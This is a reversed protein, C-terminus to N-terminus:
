DCRRGPVMLLPPTMNTTHSVKKLLDAQELRAELV